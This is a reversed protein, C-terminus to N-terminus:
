QTMQRSPTNTTPKWSLSAMSMLPKTVIQRGTPPTVASIHAMLANKRPKPNRKHAKQPTNPNRVDSTGRHINFYISTDIGDSKVTDTTKIVNNYITTHWKESCRECLTYSLSSM